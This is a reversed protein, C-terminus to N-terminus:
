GASATVTPAYNPEGGKLIRAGENRCYTDAAKVSLTGPHDISRDWSLDNKTYLQCTIPGQPSNVIVPESEFQEPTVCASVAGFAAVAFAIKLYM